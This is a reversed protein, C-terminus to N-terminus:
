LALTIRPGVCRSVCPLVVNNAEREKETLYSDLHRPTGEVVGTACWGCVGYECESKVAVGAKRLAALMTESELVPVERGTSQQVVVFEADNSGETASSPLASAVPPAFFEFHYRNGHGLREGHSQVASMMRGPGCCYVSADAPARQLEAELDYLGGAESDCHLHIDHFAGLEHLWAAFAHEAPTRCLHVLRARIGLQQLRRLMPLMPTIGIGGSLFLYAPAGEEMPFHNRPTSIRLPGGERAQEAIWRSGGRGDAAVKIGLTYSHADDLAGCLSYHRVGQEGCEVAVHAGPEFAPLPMGDSRRLRIVLVDPVPWEVSAVVADMWADGRSQEEIQM